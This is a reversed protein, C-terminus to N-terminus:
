LKELFALTDVNDAYDWLEPLQTYGFPIGKFNSITSVVCQIKEDASNILEMVKNSEQYYEYYNLSIPSVLETSEKLLSFGSDLHAEMNVLLISKNYDYNNMYKNHEKLYTFEQWEDLLRELQYNVPIFLKSVNRCGLGFYDYVDHGLKRLDENSEEGSIIAVSTRNKRIIHPYKGFYYNFYRTSNDSGTAIVADINKLKDRIEFNQKIRPDIIVMWELIKGILFNDQSSPKIAAFHGSIIVSILDHFGVLPINGAMIIGVIRSSESSLRSSGIWKYLKEESLMFSIGKLGQRVNEPTFWQNERNAGDALDSLDCEVEEDIKDKLTSFLHIRDKLKM